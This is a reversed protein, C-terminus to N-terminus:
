FSGGEKRVPKHINGPGIKSKQWKTGWHTDNIRMVAAIDKNEFAKVLEIHDRISNELEEPDGFMLQFYFVQIRGWLDRLLGELVSNGSSHWLVAHSDHNGKIYSKFEGAKFARAMRSTIEGLRKLEGPKIAEMALLLAHRDNIRIIDILDKFEEEHVEAITVRSWSDIVILKEASLKRFAERVPTVSVGFKEAVHREVIKQKPLLDGELIATKLRRYLSESITEKKLSSCILATGNM